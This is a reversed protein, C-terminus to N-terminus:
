KTYSLAKKIQCTLSCAKSGDITDPFYQFQVLTWKALTHSVLRCYADMREVRGREHESHEFWKEEIENCKTSIKARGSYINSKNRSLNIAHTIQLKWLRCSVPVTVFIPFWFYLYCFMKVKRLLLQMSQLGGFGSVNIVVFFPSLLVTFCISEMCRYSIIYNTYSNRSSSIVQYIYTGVYVM